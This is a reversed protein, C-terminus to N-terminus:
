RDNKVLYAVADTNVETQNSTPHGGIEDDEVLERGNKL